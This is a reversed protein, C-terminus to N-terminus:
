LVRSLLFGVGSLYPPADISVGVFSMSTLEISQHCVKALLGTAQTHAKAFLGSLMQNPGSLPAEGSAGGAQM